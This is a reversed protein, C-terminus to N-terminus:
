WLLCKGKIEVPFFYMSGQCLEPVAGMDLVTLELQIISKNSYSQSLETHKLGPLNDALSIIGEDYLKNEM